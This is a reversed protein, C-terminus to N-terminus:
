LTKSRNSLPLSYKDRGDPISSTRSSGRGELVAVDESSINSRFYKGRELCFAPVGAATDTRNSLPSILLHNYGRCLAFRSRRKRTALLQRSQNIAAAPASHDKAIGGDEADIAIKALYEDATTYPMSEWDNRLAWLHYKASAARKVPGTKFETYCHAIVSSHIAAITEKECIRRFMDHPLLTIRITTNADKDRESLRRPGLMSFYGTDAATSDLYKLPRSAPPPFIIGRQLFIHNIDRQDDPQAQKSMYESLHGYFVRTRLTSKIYVFGMCLTAGFIKSIEEPFKGRSAIIDASPYKELEDFPNQLWIADSDSMLVDLGQDLLQKTIRTRALWLKNKEKERGATHHIQHCQLGVKRMTVETEKDLCVFYMLAQGAPCLEHFYILWNLLVPIYKDSTTMVIRLPRIFSTLILTNNNADDKDRLSCTHTSISHHIKSRLNMSSTSMSLSYSTNSASLTETFTNTLLFLSIVILVNM